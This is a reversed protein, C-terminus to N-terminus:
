YGINFSVIIRDENSTNPLSRHPLWSPFLVMLGEEAKISYKTEVNPFRPENTHMLMTKAVWSPDHFVIDGCGEPAKSYFVGSIYSNSHVHEPVFSGTPYITTWMNILHFPKSDPDVSDIMNKAFSFLFAAVNAWEPKNFLDETSNFSTVGSKLFDEKSSSKVGRDWEESVLSGISLSGRLSYSLANLEERIPEFDSRGSLIPTSM